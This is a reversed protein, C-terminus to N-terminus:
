GILAAFANIGAARVVAFAKDLAGGAGTGLGVQHNRVVRQDHDVGRPPAIRSLTRRPDHEVFAVVNEFRRIRCEGCGQGSGLGDFQAAPHDPRFASRFSPPAAQCRPQSIEGTIVFRAALGNGGRAISGFGQGAVAPQLAQMFVLRAPRQLFQEGCHAGRDIGAIFAAPLFRAIAQFGFRRLKVPREDFARQGCLCCQGLQAPRQQPQPQPKFGQQGFRGVPEVAGAAGPDFPRAMREAPPDVQDRRPFRQQGPEAARGIGFIDVPQRDVPGLRALEIDADM